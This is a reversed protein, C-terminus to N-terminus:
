LSSADKIQTKIPETKRSQKVEAKIKSRYTKIGYRFSNFNAIVPHYKLNEDM